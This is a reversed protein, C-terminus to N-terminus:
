PRTGGSASWPGGPQWTGTFRGGRAVAFLPPGAFAAVADIVKELDPPPTEGVLRRTFGSWQMSKGPVAAFAPTLALPLEHPVDTGRRAFTAAIAAALETGDFPRGAALAQVDFFDRMRSNAAGLTVMVSCSLRYLFRESAYRTLVVNPDIGLKKAHAVLRVQM